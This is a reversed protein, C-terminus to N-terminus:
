ILINYYTLENSYLQKIQDLSAIVEQHFITKDHRSKNKLTIFLGCRCHITKNIRDKNLEYYGRMYQRHYDKKADIIAPEEEVLTGNARLIEQQLYAQHKLTKNHRFRNGLTTNVGCACTYRKKPEWIPEWVQENNVILQTAM